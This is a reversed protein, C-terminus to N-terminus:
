ESEEEMEEIIYRIGKANNELNSAYNEVIEEVFETKDTISHKISKIIIMLNEILFAIPVVILCYLVVVVNLLTVLIYNMYIGGKM